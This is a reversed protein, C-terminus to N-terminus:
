AAEEYSNIKKVIEGSWVLNKFIRAPDDIWYEGMEGYWKVCEKCLEKKQGEPMDDIREEPKVNDYFWNMIIENGKNILNLTVEIKINSM